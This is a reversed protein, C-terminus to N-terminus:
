DGHYVSNIPQPAGSFVPFGVAVDAKPAAEVSSVGCQAHM